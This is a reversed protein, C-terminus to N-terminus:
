VCEAPLSKLSFLTLSPDAAVAKKWRIILGCIIAAWAWLSWPAILNFRAPDSFKGIAIHWPFGGALTNYFIFLFGSSAATLWGYLSPSLLLVFPALWLLYYACFGPSLAFFFLWAYAISCIMGARNLYRRRWGIALVSAAISGKLFAAVVSAVPPLSVFGIVNFQSHHTLRLWYTIGWCGWYSGYALVNKAFLAPFMVLPQGWMAVTLVLWPIVFRLGARQNLWFFFLIPLFLLPVIKIQCSLAFFIGSLVPRGRLAMYAAVVLFMVMVPDTNGHFGSVMLSVPSLAFLALAWIPLRLAVITDSIRLLTWVVVLDAVIGPLRLLFPFTVGHARFFEKRSLVEILELYYATLPPHNFVPLNSGWPVGNRYTWELGHDHLSRAFIYFAAVDNSGFCNLAILVKAVFAVLAAVFIWISPAVWGFLRHAGEDRNALDLAPELYPEASVDV